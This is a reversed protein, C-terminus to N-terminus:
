ENGWTPPLYDGHQRLWKRFRDMELPRLATWGMPNMMVMEYFFPTPFKKYLHYIVEYLKAQGDVGQNSVIRFSAGRKTVPRIITGVEAEIAQPTPLLGSGIEGIRREWKPLLYCVGGLMMGAKPWTKLSPELIGMLSLFSDQYM